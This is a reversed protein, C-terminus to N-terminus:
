SSLKETLCISEIWVNLKGVRPELFYSVMEVIVDDRIGWPTESAEVWSVGDTKKLRKTQTPSVAAPFGISVHRWNLRSLPERTRVSEVIGDLYRKVTALQQKLVLCDAEIDQTATLYTECRM